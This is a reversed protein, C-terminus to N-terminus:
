RHGDQGLWIMKNKYSESFRTNLQSAAYKVITHHCTPAKAASDPNKKQWQREADKTM